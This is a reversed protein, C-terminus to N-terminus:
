AGGGRGRYALVAAELVNMVGVLVIGAVVVSGVSGVVDALAPSPVAYGVTAAASTLGVVLVVMWHALGWVARAAPNATGMETWVDVEIARIGSLLSNLSEGQYAAAAGAIFGTVVMPVVLFGFFCIIAYFACRRPTQGTIADAGRALGNLIYELVPHM